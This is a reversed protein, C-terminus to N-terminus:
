DQAWCRGSSFHQVLSRNQVLSHGIEVMGIGGAASPERMRKVMVIFEMEMITKCDYGKVTILWHNYDCGEFLIEDSSRAIARGTTRGV